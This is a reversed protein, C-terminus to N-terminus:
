DMETDTASDFHRLKHEYSSVQMHVECYKGESYFGLLSWDASAVTSPNLGRIHDKVDVTPSRQGAIKKFIL